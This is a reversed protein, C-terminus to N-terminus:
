VIFSTTFIGSMPGCIRKISTPISYPLSGIFGSSVTSGRPTTSGVLPIARRSIFGNIPSLGRWTASRQLSRYFSPQGAIIIGPNWAFIQDRTVWTLEGHGLRAAVNIVGAQDINAMVQSGGLGTELGDPGRGYYVLPREDAPAILLRGRLADIANDAYNALDNGREAVGLMAGVTRLTRPTTQIDNDLVVYPVGTQQQIQEARAAIEPSVPGAEIILDPRMRAVTQVMEAPNPPSVGGLIPLRTFKAPLYARQERSLAASWGLLKEPALVFILVDTAPSATMVRGVRDPVAVYREAADVFGAARGPGAALMLLLVTIWAAPSRQAM